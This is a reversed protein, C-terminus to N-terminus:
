ATTDFTLQVVRQTEDRLRVDHALRHGVVWIIEGASLVVLAERRRHTAVKADTLLDSVKKSGDLGLPRLRDGPQWPRVALPFRLRDADALAANPTDPGPPESTPAYRVSLRGQPLTLTEGVGLARPWEPSATDSRSEFLLAGRERWIAGAKSEVRRGTQAGALSRVEAAFDASRPAEPLWRRLAELILRDQWVPPIGELYDLDLRGMEGSTSWAAQQFHADLEVQVTEDLYARLLSAAHAIREPASTGFHTEILPLIESRLAGRRYKATRNSADERWTLGEARAYAEIATRRTALLPRVLRVDSTESLRRAPAMGALGELGAGRFLNLLLTEAQDDLHHAVAVHEIGREAAVDALFGYRLDRAAEQVSTKAQKARVAADHRTVLLPVAWAECLSKVYAEDADAEARLGYNVHAAEVAYGLKRLLHLLVVSDVGGSFGVLMRDGAQLLGHQEIFSTVQAEVVRQTKTDKHSSM